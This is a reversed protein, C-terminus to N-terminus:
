FIILMIRIYLIKKEEDWNECLFHYESSVRMHRTYFYQTLRQSIADIFEKELILDPDSDGEILHKM